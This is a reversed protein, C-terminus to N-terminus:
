LLKRNPQTRYVPSHESNLRLSFNEYRQVIVHYYMLPRWKISIDGKVPYDVPHGM